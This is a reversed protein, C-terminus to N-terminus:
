SENLMNVGYMNMHSTLAATSFIKNINMMTVKLFHGPKEYSSCWYKQLKKNEQNVNHWNVNSYM